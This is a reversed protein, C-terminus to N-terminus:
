MGCDAKDTSQDMLSGDKSDVEIKVCKDGDVTYWTKKRGGDVSPAGVKAILAEVRKDMPDNKKMNDVESKYAAKLDATKMTAKPKKAAGTTTTASGATAAAAGEPKKDCAALMTVLAMAAVCLCSSMKM